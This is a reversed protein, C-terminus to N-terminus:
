SHGRQPEDPSTMKINIPNQAPIELGGHLPKRSLLNHGFASVFVFMNLVVIISIASVNQRSILM